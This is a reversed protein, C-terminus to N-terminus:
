RNQWLRKKADSSALKFVFGVSGQIHSVMANSDESVIKYIGQGTLGFRSSVWIIGGGLINGSFVGEANTVTTAGDIYSIGLGIYPVLVRKSNGFDYRLSADVSTYNFKNSILKKVNELVNFTLALDVSFGKSLERTVNIRPFQLNYRQGIKEAVEKNFLVSSSGLGIVWKDKTGQSNSSLTCLVFLLITFILSEKM